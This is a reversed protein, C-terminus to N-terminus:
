AAGPEWKDSGNRHVWSFTKKGESTRFRQKLLHVSGDADPYPYEAELKLRDRIPRQAISASKEYFLDSIEIGLAGCIADATCGAQCHLVIGTDGAKVGFSPNRDDHAPCKGNM